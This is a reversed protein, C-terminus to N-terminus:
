PAMAWARCVTTLSTPMTKKKASAVFSTTSAINGPPANASKLRNDRMGLVLAQQLNVRRMACSLKGPFLLRPPKADRFEFQEPLRNGVGLDIALIRNREAHQSGQQQSSIASLFRLSHM